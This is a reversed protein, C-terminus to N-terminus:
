NISKLRKIVGDIIWDPTSAGSTVGIRSIGSFWCPNIEDAPEILYTKPEVQKCIKYLRNTNGSNKGGVVLMLEVEEALLRSEKQRILTADCITNYVKLERVEPVLRSVLSSLNQYTQTTQAVIGVKKKIKYLSLESYDGVVMTDKGSYGMIGQVEPHNKEGLIVLQYGKEKLSRAFSQAKKVFPCTADIVELGKTVAQDIIKPHLGHSRVLLTGRSISDLNEIVALGKENLRKVVQPNHILPGITFVRGSKQATAEFALKTARKVGFCFGANNIEIIEFRESYYKRKWPSESVM